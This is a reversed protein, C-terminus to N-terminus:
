AGSGIWGRLINAAADPDERVLDSLEERLSPGSEGFRKLRSERATEGDGASEDDYEEDDDSERRRPPPALAEGGGSRVMSRLMFLSFFALGTMGLTSWNTGLWDMAHDTVGPEEFAEPTKPVFPTVTVLSTIEVGTDPLPILQAVYDQIKTSETAIVPQLETKTPKRPEEGDPPPNENQWIREFYTTPVGVTVAVRNPTLPHSKTTKVTNGAPETVQTLNSEEKSISGSRTSNAIARPQNAGGRQAEYGPPGQNGPSSTSETSLGEKSFVTTGGKDLKRSIETQEVLTTLEVLINVVAGDVYALADRITRGWNQEYMQKTSGYRDGTPGLGGGGNASYSRMSVTDIITVSQPTLRAFSAAVYNRISAVTRADLPQGGIAKVSVAAKAHSKKRFGPKTIESYIVSAQEIGSMHQLVLAVDNQKAIRFIERSKEKGRFPSDDGASKNQYAGPSDVIRAAVLAAQYQARKSRPVRIRNIDIEYDNLGADSFAAEAVMLDSNTFPEAGNLYENAGGVQYKTLYGLSVVVVALLLGATIRAGPTMSKFLDSLQAFAKNLFDM